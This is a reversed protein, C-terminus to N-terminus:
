GEGRKADKQSIGGGSHLVPIIRGQAGTGEGPLEPRTCDTLYNKGDRSGGGGKRGRPFEQYDPDGPYEKKGGGRQM